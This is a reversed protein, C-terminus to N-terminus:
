GYFELFFSLNGVPLLSWQEKGGYVEAIGALCSAQFGESLSVFARCRLSSVAARPSLVMSDIESSLMSIEM